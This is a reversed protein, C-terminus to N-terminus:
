PVAHVSTQGDAQVVLFRDGRAYRGRVHLYNRGKVLPGDHVRMEHARYFMDLRYLTVTTNAPRRLIVVVRSNITELAANAVIRRGPEPSTLAEQVQAVVVETIPALANVVQLASNRSLLTRILENRRDPKVSRGVALVDVTAGDVEARARAADTEERVHLGMRRLVGAVEDMVRVRQFVLLVNGSLTTDATVSM